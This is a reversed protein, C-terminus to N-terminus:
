EISSGGGVANILFTCAIRLARIRGEKLAVHNGVLGNEHSRMVGGVAVSYIHHSCLQVPKYGKHVNRAKITYITRRLHGWVSMGTKDLSMGVLVKLIITVNYTICPSNRDDSSVLVNCAREDSYWHQQGRQYVWRKSMRGSIRIHVTETTGTKGLRWM